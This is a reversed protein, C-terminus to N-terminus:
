STHLGPGIGFRKGSPTADKSIYFYWPWWVGFVKWTPHFCVWGWRTEINLAVHMANYGYIVFPGFSVHGGFYREMFPLKYKIMELNVM